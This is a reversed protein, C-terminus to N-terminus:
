GMDKSLKLGGNLSLRDRNTDVSSIPSEVASTDEVAAGGVDVMGDSQYAVVRLTPDDLVRPGRRPSFLSVDSKGWTVSATDITVSHERLSYYVFIFYFMLVANM